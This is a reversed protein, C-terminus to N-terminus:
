RRRLIQIIASFDLNSDVTDCYERYLGQALQSLPARGGAREAMEVTDQLASLASQATIGAQYMNNSPASPVLGSQPCHEVLAWSTATSLATIEFVKEVPLGLKEALAFGEAAGLMNVITMLNNVLVAANALGHKGVHIVREAMDQLLPRAESFAALSGAVVVTLLRAKADRSSGIIPAELWTYGSTEVQAALTRAEEPSAPTFNILVADRRIAKLLSDDSVLESVVSKHDPLCFFVFDAHQVAELSSPAVQGGSSELRSLQTRSLDYGTVHHGVAIMNLAMPLGFAGLGIFTVAAM